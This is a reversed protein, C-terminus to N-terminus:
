RMLTPYQESTIILIVTWMEGAGVKGIIALATKAMARDEIQGTAQLIVIGFMSVIPISGYLVLAGKRGIRFICERFFTFMLRETM